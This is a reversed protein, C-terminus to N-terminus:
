EESGSSSASAVGERFRASVAQDTSLSVICTSQTGACAGSWGLFRGGPAAEATLQVMQAFSFPAECSDGCRIGAPESTVVGDGVVSLNLDHLTVRIRGERDARGRLERVFLEVAQREKARLLGERIRDSVGDEFEERTAEERETLKYVIFGTPVQLVEEPLPTELSRSFVDRVLETSDIGTIPRGTRSFSSSETVAPANPDREPAEVEEGDEGEAREAGEEPQPALQADLDDLSMGERLRTLASEAGERAMEKSRADLYLDRSLELKAEDEPVDGERKGELKIIHLGLPTEVIASIAGIELAFAAEDYASNNEGQRQYGLDGGRRASVADESIDTAVAAFDEGGNVRALAAEAKTRAEARAEEDEAPARFLIHRTRVQPELNTYDSRNAEYAADVAEGNEAIWARLDDETPELQRRFFSNKYYVYKIRASDRERVYGEWVEEDSVSVSARVTQRMREALEEEIQAQTFEGVHRRLYNRILREAAEADFRGDEDRVQVPVPGGAIPADVGLSLRVTEEDALRDMVEDATVHYGLQRAETALLNREILGDLVARWLGQSRQEETSRRNFGALIYAANFDGASITEGDVRAAYTSGGTTCGEAQPGGFQLIFVLSLLGVLGVLVFSQFRKVFSDLM